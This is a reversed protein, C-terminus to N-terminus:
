QQEEKPKSKEQKAFVGKSMYYNDLALKVVDHCLSEPEFLCESDTIIDLPEPQGIYYLKLSTLTSYIDVYIDMSWPELNEGQNYTIGPIRIIPKNYITTIYADVEKNHLPITEVWEPTTIVPVATRTIKALARVFYNYSLNLDGYQVTYKFADITVNPTVDQEVIFKRLSDMNAGVKLFSEPFTPAKCINDLMKLYADNLFRLTVDTIPRETTKFSEHSADLYEHFLKVMDLTTM